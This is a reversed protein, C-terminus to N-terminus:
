HVIEILHAKEDRGISHILRIKHPYKAQIYYLYRQVTNITYQTKQNPYKRLSAMIVYRVNADKLRKLLADADQTSFRYIGYFKRETYIFSISPKRCAIKVDKTINKAAWESMKIYNIWDPTMGYFRNGALTETLYKDNAKVKKTTVKLNTFFIVLLLIPLIVQLSKLKKNFSLYYFGSFIYILILPLYIIVIRDQDWKVQLSLFSAGCLFLLYLGVFFLHKNKKFVVVISGLFLVYTLLTLFVSTTKPNAKLGVFKYLHKSLYLQSNTTFRDIFGSFTEMGKSKNYPDVQLLLELQSSFQSSRIDFAYTKILSFAFYFVIFSLVTIGLGKWNKHFIFYTIVVFLSFLGITKTIGLLFVMFAILAYDKIKIDTKNIVQKSFFFIFLAQLMMFFAESFTQSSYYLLYANFSILLMAFALLTGSVNGKFAKQFFYLHVLIAVLSVAKLITINLGFIWVFLSLVLPYLSGQYTPFISEKVFDYARFIYASDDGAESVRFNFLLFSFLISFGLSVFLILTSKSNFFNDLRELISKSQKKM